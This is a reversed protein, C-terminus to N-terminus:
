LFRDKLTTDYKNLLSNETFFTITLTCFVDYKFMKLKQHPSTEPFGYISVNTTQCVRLMTLSLLWSITKLGPAKLLRGL